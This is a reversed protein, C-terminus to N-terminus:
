AVKIVQAVVMSVVAIGNWVVFLPLFFKLWKSWSVGGLAITAMFWGVVPYLLNTLGDGFNLAIIATQRTVGVMDSLPIMIPMTLVAQGSGSPVLFNMFTQVMLMGISNISPPLNGIWNALYYIITDMIMGQSMVVSVGRAMGIVLVGMLIEACGDNFSKSLKEGSLGGFFGIVITAGVLLASLEPLDWQFKVVGFVLICFMIGIMILARTKQPNTQLYSDSTIEDMNERKVKDEGATLSFNPDRKVRMAYRMVYTISVALMVALMISRFAAGSYLPLGAIKQAIVTTFPNAVAGVFGCGTAILPVACATVSDYGLALFVPILIPVYIMCLEPTGIFTDIVGMIVMLIPIILISNKAIKHTLKTVGFDIAGTAKFVGFAGGIILTFFCIWSTEVLGQPFAKLLGMLGVPSSEVYKFSGPDIMMRGGPGTIREFQGAPIIYTLCVTIFILLFLLVYIHPIKSRPTTVSIPNNTSEM